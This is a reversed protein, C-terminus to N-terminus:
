AKFFENAINKLATSKSKRTFVGISKPRLLTHPKSKTKPLILSSASAKIVDDSFNCAAQIWDIQNSGSPHENGYTQNFWGACKQIAANTSEACACGPQWTRMAVKRVMLQLGYYTRLCDLKSWPRFSGDSSQKLKYGDMLGQETLWKGLITGNLGHNTKPKGKKKPPGNLLIGDIPAHLACLYSPLNPIAAPHYPVLQGNGWQGVAQWCIEYKLFINILKQALGFSALATARGYAPLVPQRMPCRGNERLQIMKNLMWRDFVILACTETRQLDKLSVLELLIQHKENEAFTNGHVTSNWTALMARWSNGFHNNLQYRNRPMVREVRWLKMELHLASTFICAPEPNGIENIPAGGVYKVFSQAVAILTEPFGPAQPAPIHCCPM